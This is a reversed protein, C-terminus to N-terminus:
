RHVELTIPDDSCRVELFRQQAPKYVVTVMGCGREDGYAMPLSYQDKVWVSRGPGVEKSKPWDMSCPVDPGELRLEECQEGPPLEDLGPLMYVGIVNEASDVAYYRVYATLPRAHKPLEIQREIQSLLAERGSEAPASFGLILVAVGGTLSANM